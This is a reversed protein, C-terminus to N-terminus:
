FVTYVFIDALHDPSVEGITIADSAATLPDTPLPKINGLVPQAGVFEMDIKAGIFM